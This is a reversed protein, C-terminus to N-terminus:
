NEGEVLPGAASEVAGVVGVPGDARVVHMDRLLAIVVESYVQLGQQGLVEPRKPERRVGDEM